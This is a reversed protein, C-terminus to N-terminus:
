WRTNGLEQLPKGNRDAVVFSLEIPAACRVAKLLIKNDGAKLTVDTQAPGYGLTPRFPEHSHRQLIRTGNLWVKAGDNTHVVIRADTPETMHLTTQGYAAGPVGTFIRELDMVYSGFAMRQWRTLGGDRALFDKDLAQNDEPGYAHDYGEDALNRFSGVFWWCSGGFFPIEVTTAPANEPTMVLTISNRTKLPASEPAKVVFGFRAMRGQALMQRQGQAGPVGVEWGQPVNLSIHGMFDSGGLNRVAVTFSTAVGPLIVPGAAGHDVTFEFPGSEYVASASAPKWLPQVLANDTWNIEPAAPPAAPVDIPAPPETAEPAAAEVPTPTSDTETESVPAAPVPSESAAAPASESEGSEASDAPPPQSPFVEPVTPADLELFHKPASEAPEPTAVAPPTSAVPEPTAAANAGFDDSGIRVDGENAAVFREGEVATHETLEATNREVDLGVVGWGVVVAEGIPELWNQPIGNKGRLIGLAAGVAGGTFQTAYGCNVATTISAGFDGKGYLLGLATFGINQPADSYNESGVGNIIRGRAELPSVDQGFADRAIKVARAVRCDGPIMALGTELLRHVDSVFFAASELAATFMSAWIGEDAHDICSDRYAYQAATQPSGPALMGWLDARSAGRIGNRFWNDFSGSMAPKLNRRLNNLAYGYEDWPYTLYQEWAAALEGSSIEPGARRIAQLWVLQFDLGDFATAQGPLPDFFAGTGPEKSGDKAAGLTSGINKGLWGGHIKERYQERTLALPM